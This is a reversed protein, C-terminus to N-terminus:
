RLGNSIEPNKYLMAELANAAKVVGYRQGDFSNHMRWWKSCLAQSPIFLPRDYLTPLPIVSYDLERRSNLSKRIDFTAWVLQVSGSRSNFVLAVHLPQNSALLYFAGSLAEGHSGTNSVNVVAHWSGTLTTMLKQLKYLQREGDHQSDLVSLATALDHKVNDTALVTMRKYRQPVLIELPEVDYYEIYSGNFRSNVHQGTRCVLDETESFPLESARESHLVLSGLITM